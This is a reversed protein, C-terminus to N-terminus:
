SCTRFRTRTSRGLLSTVEKFWYSELEEFSEKKTLDYVIIIGQAGKYYTGTITRFREQGATDWIQFKVVNGGVSISRLSRHRVQVPLRSRHHGPVDIPLHRGHVEAATLIQWGLQQGGHRDQLPLRVVQDNHGIIYIYKPWAGPSSSSHKGFCVLRCQVSPLDSGFSETQGSKVGSLLLTQRIKRSTSASRPSVIPLPAKTKRLSAKQLHISISLPPLSILNHNTPQKQYRHSKYNSSIDM